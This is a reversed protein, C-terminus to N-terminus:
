TLLRDAGGAKSAAALPEYLGTQMIKLVSEIQIALERSPVIILAQIYNNSKELSELLPILFALTKGSGTDSILILSNNLKSLDHSLLWTRVPSTM